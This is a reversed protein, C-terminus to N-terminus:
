NVTVTVAASLSPNNADRITVTVTAPAGLPAAVTGGKITLVNSAVTATALQPNSSTVVYAGSGGTIVANNTTATNVGDDVNVSVATPTVALGTTGCAVGNDTITIQALGTSRMSDVVTLTITKNGTVCRTGATGTILRVTSNTSCAANEPRLYTPDSTFLCVEGVAGFITFDIPQTDNESVVIASPSFRISTTAVNIEVEIKVTQGTADAVTVDLKSALSGLIRLEDGVITANIAAPIGGAVKYPPQGGSIKGIGQIGVPITLKDPSIRLEPAGVKIAIGKIGNATGTADRIIVQTEGIAVGTIKWQKGGALLEIRAVNSDAVNITYPASGGGIDFTRAAESGVGITLSDPATTYLNVPEPPDTKVYFSVQKDDADRVTIKTQKPGNLWSVVFLDSAEDEGIKAWSLGVVGTEEVNVLYSRKETGDAGGKIRGGTIKFLRGQNAKIVVPNALTGFGAPVDVSLPLTGIPEGGSGGGGGCAALFMVLMFTLFRFIKQM